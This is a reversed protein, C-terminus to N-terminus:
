ASRTKCIHVMLLCFERIRGKDMSNHVMLLVLRVFISAHLINEELQSAVHGSFCVSEFDHLLQVGVRKVLESEHSM